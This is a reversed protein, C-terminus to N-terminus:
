GRFKGMLDVLETFKQRQEAADGSRIADEVCHAAHQKLM